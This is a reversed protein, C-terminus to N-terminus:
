RIQKEQFRVLKVKHWVSSLKLSHEKPYHKRKLKYKEKMATMKNLKIEIRSVLIQREM